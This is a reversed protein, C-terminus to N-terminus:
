THPPFPYALVWTHYIRQPETGPVRWVPNIYLMSVCLMSICKTYVVRWWAGWFVCVGLWGGLCVCVCRDALFLLADDHLAEHAQAAGCLAKLEYGLYGVFGGCFDFPLDVCPSMGRCALATALEDFLNCHTRTTTTSPTTIHLTGTPAHSPTPPHLTYQWRQWLPGGPGGMFSFRGRSTDASHHTNKIQTYM